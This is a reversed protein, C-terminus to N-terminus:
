MNPPIRRVRDRFPINDTLNIPHKVGKAHGLEITSAAFADNHKSLFDRVELKQEETLVSDELDVNVHSKYVNKSDADVDFASVLNSMIKAECQLHQDSVFSMKMFMAIKKCKPIDISQSSINVLHIPVSNNDSSVACRPIFLGGSLSDSPEVIGATFSRQAGLRGQIFISKGAPVTIAAKSYIAVDESNMESQALHHLASSWAYSEPKINREKLVHLVNTGVIIPVNKNYLTAPVIIVPVHFSESCQDVAMDIEIYGSYPINEGGAGEIHLFSDFPQLAYKNKLQAQYYADSMSTVMSGTDILAKINKGGVYATGM